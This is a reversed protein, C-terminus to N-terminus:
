KSCILQIYRILLNFAEYYLSPNKKMKIKDQSGFFPVITRFARKYLEYRNRHYQDRGNEM